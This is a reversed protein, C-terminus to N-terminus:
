DEADEVRGEFTRPGRMGTAVSALRGFLDAVADSTEETKKAQAVVRPTAMLEPLNLGLTDLLKVYIGLIPNAIAKSGITNGQKDVMPEWVIAGHEAVDRRLQDLMELASAVNGALLGHVHQVDGSHLTAMIDEFARVFVQKDLCNRGPKTLEQEVLSCPYQECTSRCPTAQTMLQLRQWEPARTMQSYLGHKWGNRSSAAKGEETRPGTSLDAAARRQALAAPTMTKKAQGGKRGAARRQEREAESLERKPKDSKESMVGDDGRWM